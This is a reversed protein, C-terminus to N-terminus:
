AWVTHLTEEMGTKDRRERLVLRMGDSVLSRVGRVSMGLLLGGLKLGLRTVHDTDRTEKDIVGDKMRACKDRVHGRDEDM